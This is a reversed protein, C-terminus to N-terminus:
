GSRPSPPLPPPFISEASKRGILPCKRQVPKRLLPNVSLSFFISFARDDLLFFSSLRRAQRPTNAPLPSFFLALAFVSHRSFFLSVSRELSFFFPLVGLPPPLFLGLFFFFPKGTWLFFLFPFVGSFFFLGKPPFGFSPWFHLFFPAQCDDEQWGL